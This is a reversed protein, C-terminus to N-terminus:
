CGPVFPRDESLIAFIIKCMKRAIATLAAFHHKGRSILSNYYRNLAPEYRYATNAALWIARRLHPSGKKSIKNHTGVFDGSENVKPDLGAFAVLKNSKDFRSISGIEGLIVSALVNGIGRITTIFTNAKALLRDCEMDTEKIQQSFLKIEVLYNRLEFSASISNNSCGVTNRAASFLKETKEKHKRITGKSVNKIFKSIEEEKEQLLISPLPYKILIELSTVGFVDSFIGTYEPFTRLLMSKVKRKLDSQQQQLWTRHRSLFKLEELTENEHEHIRTCQVRVFNALCFADKADTKIPRNNWAEAFAKSQKPNIMVVQYGNEELYNLVSSHFSGTHEMCFKIQDKEKEVNNVASILDIYGDRTNPIALPKKWLAKGYEDTMCSMLIKKSVDIGVFYRM